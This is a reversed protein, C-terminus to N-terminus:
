LTFTSWAPVAEPSNVGPQRNGALGGRDPNGLQPGCSPLCCISLLGQVFGHHVMIFPYRWLISKLTISHTGTVWGAARTVWSGGWESPLMGSWLYDASYWTSIVKVYKLKASVNIPWRSLPMYENCRHMPCNFPTIVKIAIHLHPCRFSPFCQLKFYFFFVCNSNHLDCFINKDYFECCTCMNEFYQLLHTRNEFFWLM